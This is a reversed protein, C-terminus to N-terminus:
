GNNNPKEDQSMLSDALDNLERCAARIAKRVVERLLTYEDASVEYYSKDPLYVRIDKPTVVIELNIKM